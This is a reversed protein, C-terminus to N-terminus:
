VVAGFNYPDQIRDLMVLSTPPPDSALLDGLDWFPYPRMKAILGQHDGAGCLQALRASTEASVPVHKEAALAAVEDAIVSGLTRDIRLEVIPWRGARLTELVVHRGWLWCRQHSGMLAPKRSRRRKQGVMAVLGTLIGVGSEGVGSSESVERAIGDFR